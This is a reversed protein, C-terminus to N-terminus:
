GPAHQLVDPLFDPLADVADIWGQQVAQQLWAALDFADDAAQLAPELAPLTQLAQMWRATTPPLAVAQAQWGTRWVWATQAGQQLADRCARADPAPARHHQWLTVIPWDSALLRAGPALRLRLTSPPLEALRQLDAPQLAPQPQRQLDWLAWDLRASDALWPWPRLEDQEALTDAFDEGVWALDGRRPPRALWHRAAVADFAEEGLMALVTPFQARLAVRAHERGNGRYAALGETWRGGSQRVGLAAPAGPAAQPAFLLAVLAQQRAAERATANTSAPAANM